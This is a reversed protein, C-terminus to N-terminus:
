YVMQGGEDNSVSLLLLAPALMGSVISHTGAKTIDPPRPHNPYYSCGREQRYLLPTNCVGWM